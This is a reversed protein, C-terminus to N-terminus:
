TKENICSTFIPSSANKNFLQAKHIMAIKIIRITKTYTTAEVVRMIVVKLTHITDVHSTKNAHQIIILRPFSSDTTHYLKM